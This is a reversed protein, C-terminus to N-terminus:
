TADDINWINIKSSQSSAVEDVAMVFLVPGLHDGQQIGTASCIPQDSSLVTSPSSQALHALRAMSPASKSCVRPLHDRRNSNLANKLDLIVILRNQNLLGSETHGIVYQM